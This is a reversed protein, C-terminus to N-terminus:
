CDDDDDDDAAADLRQELRPKLTLVWDEGLPAAFVWIALTDGLLLRPLVILEV